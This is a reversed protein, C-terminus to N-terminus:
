CERGREASRTEAEAREKEREASRRGRKLEEKRIKLVEEEKPAEQKLKLEESRRGRKLEEKRIKLM